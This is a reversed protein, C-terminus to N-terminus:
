QKVLLKYRFTEPLTVIQHTPGTPLSDLSMTSEAGSLLGVVAEALSDM